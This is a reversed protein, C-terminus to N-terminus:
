GRFDTCASMESLGCRHLTGDAWRQSSRSTIVINAFALAFVLTLLCVITFRRALM